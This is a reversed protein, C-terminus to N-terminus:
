ENATPDGWIQTFLQRIEAAIYKWAWQKDSANADWMLNEAYSVDVITRLADPEARYATAFFNTHAQVAEADRRKVAETTRDAFAEVWNLATDGDLPEWGRKRLWDDTLAAEAPFRSHLAAVLSHNPNNSDM